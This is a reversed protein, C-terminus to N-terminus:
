RATIRVAPSVGTVLYPDSTVVRYLHRGRTPPTAHVTYRGSSRVRSTNVQRWHRGVRRQLVVQMQEVNIRAVVSGRIAVRRGARVTTRDPVASVVPQTKPAVTRFLVTTDRYVDLDRRRQPLAAIVCFRGEKATRRFAYYGRSDTTTWASGGYGFAGCDEGASTGITLLLGRVPAGTDADVVRGKVTVPGGAGVVVRPEVHATLEPQHTASVTLTRTIGVTRPDVGLADDGDGAIVYSVQWTGEFTSPVWATATWIGDQATGSTLDLDLSRWRPAGATAGGSTRELSVLPVPHPIHSNFSDEVGQPDKLHVSVVVKVAGLGSVQVASRSLQVDVLTTTPTQEAAAPGAVAASAVLVLALLAAPVPRFTRV